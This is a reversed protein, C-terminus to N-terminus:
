HVIPEWKRAKKNYYVQNDPFEIYDTGRNMRYFPELAEGRTYLNFLYLSKVQLEDEPMKFMWFAEDYDEIFFDKERFKLHGAIATRSQDFSAAPRDIMWYWGGREDPKIYRWRYTEGASQYFGAYVEDFKNDHTAGPALRHLYPMIQKKITNRTAEDWYEEPLWGQEVSKKAPAAVESQIPSPDVPSESSKGPTASQCSLLGILLIPFYMNQFLFM